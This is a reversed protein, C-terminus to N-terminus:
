LVKLLEEWKTTYRPSLLDAKVRWEKNLGEAAHQVIRKGFKKNLNDMAQMLTTSRKAAEENYVQLIDQQLYDAPVINLLIVGAKKYQYGNKYISELGEMAARILISTDSTPHAFEIIKSNIYQPTAKFRNTKIYVYLAYAKSGQRRLKRAASAAYTAIAERLERLETVNKGFSRTASISKRPKLEELELCCIGNLEYVIREAIVSFHNRIFRANVQKLDYATKINLKYELKAGWQKGIGWIDSISLSRLALNIDYETLLECVGKVQKKAIEGAAKALSKTHSIGISVPIGTWLMVKERLMICYELPNSIGKLAIFAEDISYIEISPVFARLTAMVRRSMDGYLEFNSSHIIVGHKKCIEEFKFYPAGMPIGLLKAENSRSIVCGDNSSLVVIPKGIYSPNFLRECSAYFNNCDVLAIVQNM